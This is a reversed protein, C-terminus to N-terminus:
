KNTWGSITKLKSIICNKKHIKMSGVVLSIFAAIFLTWDIARVLKRSEEQSIDTGTIKFTLIRYFDHEPKYPEAPKNGIIRGFLSIICLVITLWLYTNPYMTALVILILLIILGIVFVYNSSFSVGSSKEAQADSEM